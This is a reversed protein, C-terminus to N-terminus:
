NLLTNELDNIFNKINDKAIYYYSKGDKKMLSVMSCELLNSMHYSVTAPTLNLTEAIELSYKPGSKLLLIIDLKSKDALSKLKYVLNGKIGLSDFQADYLSELFIGVYVKNDPISILGMTIISPIITLSDNIEFLPKLIKHKDKEVFEVYTNFFPQIDKAVSSSAKNFAQINKNILKIYIEYYKLPNDLILMFRWKSHENFDTEKLFLLIDNVTELNNFSFNTEFIENYTKIFHARLEKNTFSDLNDYILRNSIFICTFLINAHLEEEEILFKEEEDISMYKKFTKMYKDLAKLKKNYYIEGNIGLSNLQKIYELKTKEINICSSILYPIEFLPDLENSININM